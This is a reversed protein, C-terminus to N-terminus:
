MSLKSKLRNLLSDTDVTDENDAELMAQGLAYDELNNDIDQKVAMRIVEAYATVGLNM